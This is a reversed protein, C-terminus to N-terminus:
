YGFVDKELTRPSSEEEDEADDEGPMNIPLAYRFEDVHGTTTYKEKPPANADVFGHEKVMLDIINPLDKGAKRMCERIRAGVGTEDMESQHLFRGSLIGTRDKDPHYLTNCKSNGICVFTILYEHMEKSM